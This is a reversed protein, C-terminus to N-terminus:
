KAEIMGIQDGHVLAGQATLNISAVSEMNTFIVIITNDKGSAELGALDVTSLLTDPTVKEGEQVTTNFPAGKLEVTDIGIHILVEIGNDLEIGVAHKTPFVSVVKGHGPSYVKGDTPKVGFGDGMMKQSFVPDNVEEIAVFEGNSPAYIQAEKTEEKKGKLFDFLAM